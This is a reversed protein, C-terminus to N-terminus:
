DEENEKKKEKGINFYEIKANFCPCAKNVDPLDRHGLIEAKPWKKKLLTLLWRLSEKQAATRTDKAKLSREALGGIYCVGISMPNYVGAHAGKLGIDRGVEIDGNIDVVFHYGIGDWGKAKHWRDIDAAKFNRGEETASCHVIIRTIQRKCARISNAIQVLNEM